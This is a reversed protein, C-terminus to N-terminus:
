RQRSRRHARWFSSIGLYLFVLALATFVLFRWHAPGHAYSTRAPWVGRLVFVPVFISFLSGDSRALPNRWRPPLRAFFGSLGRSVSRGAQLTARTAAQGADLNRNRSGAVLRRSACVSSRVLRPGSGDCAARRHTRRRPSRHGSRPWDQSSEYRKHHYCRDRDSQEM